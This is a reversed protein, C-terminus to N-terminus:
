LFSFPKKEMENKEVFHTSSVWRMPPTSAPWEDNMAVTETALITTVVLYVRYIM